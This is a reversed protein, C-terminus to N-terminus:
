SLIHKIYSNKVLKGFSRFRSVEIGVGKSMEAVKLVRIKDTDGMTVYDSGMANLTIVEGMCSFMDGADMLGLNLNYKLGSLYCVGGEIVLTKRDKSNVKKSANLPQADDIIITGKSLQESNHIISYPANTVTIVIDADKLNKLSTGSYVIASDLTDIKNQLRDINKDILIFKDFHDRLIKFCASGMSGAAGVIAVTLEKGAIGKIRIANNSVVWATLSHGTTVHCDVAKDVDIGNKTFSASLAGLGIHEVGLKEAFKAARIVKVNALERNDNMDKADMPSGVFVGRQKKGQKNISYIFGARIPFMHRGIFRLIFFPVVKLLPFRRYLDKYDRSHILFCYDIKGLFKKSLKNAIKKPLVNIIFDLFM